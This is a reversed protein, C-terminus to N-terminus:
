YVNIESIRGGYPKAGMPVQLAPGIILQLRANRLSVGEAIPVTYYIIDKGSISQTYPEGLAKSADSRHMGLLSNRYVAISCGPKNELMVCQRLAAIKEKQETNFKELAEADAKERAAKVRPADEVWQRITEKSKRDNIEAQRKAEATRKEIDRRHEEVMSDFSSAPGNSRSDVVKQEGKNCPQDQYSIQGQKQECRFLQASAPLSFVLIAVYGAQMIRRFAM